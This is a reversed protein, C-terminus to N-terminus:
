LKGFLFFDLCTFSCMRKKTDNGAEFTVSSEENSETSSEENSVALSQEDSFTFMGPMQLNQLYAHAKELYSLAGDEGSTSDYALDLCEKENLENTQSHVTSASSELEYFAEEKPLLSDMSEQEKNASQNKGVCVYKRKTEEAVSVADPDKPAVDMWKSDDTILFKSEAGFQSPVNKKSPPDPITVRCTETVFDCRQPSTNISPAEKIRTEKNFNQKIDIRLFVEKLQCEFTILKNELIMNKQQEAKLETQLKKIENSFQKISNEIMNQKKNMEKRQNKISSTSQVVNNVKEQQKKLGENLNKIEKGMAKSREHVQQMGKSYVNLVGNRLITLDEEKVFSDYSLRETRVSLCNSIEKELAKVKNSTETIRKDPDKTNKTDSSTTKLGDRVNKIENVLQNTGNQLKEMGENLFDILENRRKGLDKEEDFRKNVERKLAKLENSTGTNKKDIIKFLDNTSQTANSCVKIGTKIKNLDEQSLSNPPTERRKLHELECQLNNIKESLENIVRVTVSKNGEQSDGTVIITLNSSYTENDM